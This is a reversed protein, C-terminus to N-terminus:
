SKQHPGAGVVELVLVRRHELREAAVAIRLGAEAVGEAAVHEHPHARAQLERCGRALPRVGQARGRAGAEVKTLGEETVNEGAATLM